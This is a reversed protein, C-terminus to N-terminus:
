PHRWHRRRLSAERRHSFALGNPRVMDTIVASMALTDPDIRYVNCAGIESIAKNGEYDTDIGYSPDTFWISGDSKSWRTTPRTSGSARSATPWRSSRATM